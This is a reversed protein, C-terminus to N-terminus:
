TLFFPAIALFSSALISQLVTSEGDISGGRLWASWSDIRILVFSWTYGHQLLSNLTLSHPLARCICLLEVHCFQLSYLFKQDLSISQSNSVRNLTALSLVLHHM